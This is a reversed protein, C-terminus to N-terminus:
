EAAELAPAARHPSAYDAPLQECWFDFDIVDGMTCLGDTWCGGLGFVSYHTSWTFRQPADAHKNWLWVARGDRPATAIPRWECASPEVKDVQFGLAEAIRKFAENAHFEHRAASTKDIIHYSASLSEIFSLAAMNASAFKTSTIM